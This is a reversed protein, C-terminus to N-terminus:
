PLADPYRTWLTDEISGYEYFHLVAEIAVIKQVTENAPYRLSGQEGFNIDFVATQLTRMDHLHHTPMEAGAPWYEVNVRTGGVIVIREDGDDGSARFLSVGIRSQNDLAHIAIKIQERSPDNIVAMPEWKALVWM